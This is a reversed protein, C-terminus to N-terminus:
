VGSATVVVTESSTPNWVSFSGNDTTSAKTNDRNTSAGAKPSNSGFTAPTVQQDSETTGHHRKNNAFSFTYWSVQFILLAAFVYAIQYIISVTPTAPTDGDIGLLAGIIVFVILMCSHLSCLLTTTTITRYIMIMKERMVMSGGYKSLELSNKIHKRLRFYGVMFGVSFYLISPICVYQVYLQYSRDTQLVILAIVFFMFFVNIAKRYKDATKTSNTRAKEAVYVWTVSVNLVGVCTCLFLMAILHNSEEVLAVYKKNDQLSLSFPLGAALQAIYIGFVSIGFVSSFFCCFITFYLSTKRKDALFYAAWVNLIMSAFYVLIGMVTIVILGASRESTDRCDYGTKAFTMSCACQQPRASWKAEKHCLADGPCDADMSCNLNYGNFFCVYRGLADLPDIRCEYTM